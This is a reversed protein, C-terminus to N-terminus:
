DEYDPNQWPQKPEGDDKEVILCRTTLLTGAVSAAHELACRVVKTPDIVGSKILDEYEGTAANLGFGGSGNRVKDIVVSPELGANSSIMRLPEELCRRVINVGVREGDTVTLKDLVSQCRLLAVGGGPVIGEQAAARTAYMADEVRDKREKLAMESHAGVKIVAIGGSMKALREQLKEKDFDSSTEEIQRRILEQRGTIAAKDGLGDVILTNEHDMVARRCRGLDALTASEIKRGTEEAIVVGGTLVGLDALIEKRRDGFAPSKVACCQLTGRMRNIVLTALAEPDFDEAIILLPKNAKVVQELLPVLEALNSIKRQHLLVYPDELVCQMRASDTVFYPSMYGKDFQMGDVTELVTETNKAEEITIVGDKGVKEMAQALMQGVEEDGNASITGIRAIQENTEIPRSLKKLEAVVAEVAIDIGRKIFMADHRAAVMAAGERYIAEALVTATTTGDGALEATKSAVERVLRVGVNQLRNPLDIEKAVTVGDKTIRPQSAGSSFVVNRGKPGLTVKVARALAEVGDLLHKQAVLDYVIERAAM